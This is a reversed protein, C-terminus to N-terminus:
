LSPMGFQPFLDTSGWDTSKAINMVSPYDPYWSTAAYAKGGWSMTFGWQGNLELVNGSSALSGGKQGYFSDGAQKSVYDFGYGARGMGAASMTAGDSLMSTLTSRKMAPNDKTSILIAILRAIDTAAGTLGGGGEMIEIQETGYESPVLPQDPSMQSPAVQLSPDEYRAEDSPEASILSVARRIRHIGLPNFLASQYADVPKSVGRIHAVVRGLLYYGCNNYAQKAGPASVMGLGAVYADTMSETVPLTAPHGAQVFAQVVAPGNRFADPNVGSTHELLHKITIDGFRGDAPASGSPTKLQLMAQVKDTLKLKGAEILQFVAVATVTKSVSAMRFCSTPQVHPWNPEAMTYGRAYVLKAGHVIALSAHRVPSDQMAQKIVADIAANAVPGTATFAKAVTSESKAFIAAFRASSADAGAAQVCIPFYSKTKLADFEAQYDSPSMNHRAVWDGVQRDVFLSLYRNSANLTVHAPRSWASTQANFRAQYTGSDDAVGDCNWLTDDTNPMWIAAFHPANADGYTAACHLILGESKAKANMGQITGLDSSDGSKLLHRTLPIPNCPQFVAAFRPSAASGTAAIIVPGYGAKAQENFVDQFQAATLSPWDRQAVIAPRKIMVAAYIPDSAPGYISLSLFRYGDKAAGDRQAVHQSLSRGHWAVVTAM